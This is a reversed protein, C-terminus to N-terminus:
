LSSPLTLTQRLWRKIDIEEAYSICSNVQIWNKVERIRYSSIVFKNQDGLPFLFERAVEIDSPNPCTQDIIDKTPRRTSFFKLDLHSCEIFANLSVIKKCDQFYIYCAKLPFSCM